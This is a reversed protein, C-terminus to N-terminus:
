WGVASMAFFFCWWVIRKDNRLVDRVSLRHEEAVAIAAEDRKSLDEDHITMDAVNSEAKIEQRGSM